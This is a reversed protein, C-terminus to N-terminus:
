SSESYNLIAFCKFPIKWEKTLTKDLHSNALLLRAFENSLCDTLPLGDDNPRPLLLQMTNRALYPPFQRNGLRSLGKRLIIPSSPFSRCANRRKSKRAPKELWKNNSLRRYVREGPFTARALLTDNLSWWGEEIIIGRCIPWRLVWKSPFFFFFSRTARNVHIWSGIIVKEKERTWKWSEINNLPISIGM